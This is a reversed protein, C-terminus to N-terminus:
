KLTDGIVGLADDSNRSLQRDASSTDRSSTPRPELYIVPQIPQQGETSDMVQSQVGGPWQTIEAYPSRRPPSSPVIPSPLPRPPPSPTPYEHREIAPAEGGNLWGNYSPSRSWRSRRTSRTSSRSRQPRPRIEPSGSIPIGIGTSPRSSRETMETITTLRTAARVRHEVNQKTLSVGVSVRGRARPRKTFMAARRFARMRSTEIPPPNYIDIRELGQLISEFREELGLPQSGRSLWDVLYIAFGSPTSGALYEYCLLASTGRPYFFENNWKDVVEAVADQPRL